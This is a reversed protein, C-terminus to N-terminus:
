RRRGEEKETGVGDHSGRLNLAECLSTIVVPWRRVITPQLTLIPSSSLM